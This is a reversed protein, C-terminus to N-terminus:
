SSYNEREERISTVAAGSGGELLPQSPPPMMGHVKAAPNTNPTTNGTV